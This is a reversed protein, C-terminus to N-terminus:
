TYRDGAPAVAHNIAHQQEGDETASRQGSPRLRWLREDDTFREHDLRLDQVLIPPDVDICRGRICRRRIDAQRHEVHGVAADGLIEQVHGTENLDQGAVAGHAWKEQDADLVRLAAAIEGPWRFSCSLFIATRTPPAAFNRANRRSSSMGAM